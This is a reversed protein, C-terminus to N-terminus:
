LQKTDKIIRNQAFLKTILAALVTAGIREGLICLVFGASVKTKSFSVM